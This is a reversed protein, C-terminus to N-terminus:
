KPQIRISNASLRVFDYEDGRFTRYIRIAAAPAFKILWILIGYKRKRYFRNAEVFYRRSEEYEKKVLYIKGKELALHALAREHQYIWATTETDTLDHKRRILDLAYLSREARALTGGSLSSFSVRYKLLVKKQYGIRCGNKAAAFWLFFDEPGGGASQDEDFGGCAIVNDRRIVTGSTIVNSGGSILSEPSVANKSPSIQMFTKGDWLKEGFMLADAYVMEYDGGRLFAIQEALYEPLWIDDGDLFALYEGSSAQIATNRAAAAGGNVRSLYIIKDFFPKIIQEFRATDPSGDNVLIVEYDDFSQAFVSALTDAIYDASNYAPIIVSVLPAARVIEGRRSFKVRSKINECDAYKEELYQSM